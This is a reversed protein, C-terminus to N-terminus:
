DACDSIHDEEGQLYESIVSRRRSSPRLGDELSGDESGDLDLEEYNIAPVQSQDLIASGRRLAVGHGAQAQKCAEARKAKVEARKAGGRAVRQIQCAAFHRAIRQRELM